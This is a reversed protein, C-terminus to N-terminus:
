LRRRPRVPVAEAEDLKDEAQPLGMLRERTVQSDLVLFTDGLLSSLSIETPAPKASAPMGMHIVKPAPAKRVSEVMEELREFACLGGRRRQTWRAGMRSLEVMVKSAEQLTLLESAPITSGSWNTRPVVESRIKGEMSDLVAQLIGTRHTDTVSADAGLSEWLAVDAPTRLMGYRAAAWFPTPAYFKHKGSRTLRLNPDFDVWTDRIHNIVLNDRQVFLHRLVTQFEEPSDFRAGKKVMADLVRLRDKPEAYTNMRRMGFSVLFFALPSLDGIFGDLRAGAEILRVASGSEMYNLAHSLPQTGDPLPRGPNWGSRILAEVFPSRNMMDRSTKQGRPGEALVSEVLTKSRGWSDKPRRDLFSVGSDLAAVFAGVQGNDFADFARAVLQDHDPSKTKMCWNYGLRPLNTMRNKIPSQVRLGSFSLAEPAAEPLLTKEM